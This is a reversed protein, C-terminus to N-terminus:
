KLQCHLVESIEFVRICLARKGSFTIGASHLASGSGAARPHSHTHGAAQGVSTPVDTVPLLVPPKGCFECHFNEFFPLSESTVWLSAHGPRLEPCVKEAEGVSCMHHVCTDCRSKASSVRESSFLKNCAHKLSSYSALDDLGGGWAVPRSGRVSAPAESPVSAPPLLGSATEPAGVLGLQEKPGGPHVRLSSQLRM